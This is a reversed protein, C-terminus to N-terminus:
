NSYAETQEAIELADDVEISLYRVVTSELNTHGLFLQVARLNKTRRDRARLSRWPTGTGSGSLPPVLAPHGVFNVHAIGTALRSRRWLKWNFPSFPQSLADVQGHEIGAV